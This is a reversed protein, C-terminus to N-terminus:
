RSLTRRETRQTTEHVEHVKRSLGGLADRITHTEQVAEPPIQLLLEKAYAAAAAAAYPQWIKNKHSDAYDSIGRIVLCPFSEQLGAAEMDVCLIHMDHRLRDRMDTREIVVNSSGITGYHIRPSSSKRPKRAIAQTADCRKCSKGGQHVYDAQFLRDREAGRYQYEDRMAPYRDFMEELYQQINSGRLRHSAKLLEVNSALVHPPKNLHGSLVFGQATQKGRDFQIVGGLAGQAESVVIDGLRLDYGGEDEDDEDPVGGGVGVLLGFRVRPFDNLLQTVVTAAANNGIVPMAAVIVNHQGIRGLQYANQDRSITLRQHEDDLLARVPALEVGMPCIIAVTYDEHQLLPLSMASPQIAPGHNAM